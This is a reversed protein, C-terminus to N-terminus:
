KLKSVEGFTQSCGIKILVVIFRNLRTRVETGVYSILVLVLRRAYAICPLFFALEFSFEKQKTNTFMLPFTIRIKSFTDSILVM